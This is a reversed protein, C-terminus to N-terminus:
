LGVNNTVDKRDPYEDYQGATSFFDDCHFDYGDFSKIVLEDPIEDLIWHRNDEDTWNDICVGVDQLHELTDAFRIKERLEEFQCPYLNRVNM